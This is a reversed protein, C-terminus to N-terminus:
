SQYTTSAFFGFECVEYHEKTLNRTRTMHDRDMDRLLEALVDKNNFNKIIGDLACFIHVGHAKVRASKRLEYSKLPGFITFM